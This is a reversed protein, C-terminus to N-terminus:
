DIHNKGCENRIAADINGIIHQEDDEDFCFVWPGCNSRWGFRDIASTRIAFGHKDGDEIHKTDISYRKPEFIKKSLESCLVVVTLGAVYGIQFKHKDIMEKGKELKEHCWEKQKELM